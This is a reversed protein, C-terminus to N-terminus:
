TGSGGDSPSDDNVWVVATSSLGDQSPIDFVIAAEDGARISVVASGAPVPLPAAPRLQWAGGAVVLVLAFAVAPVWVRRRHEIFEELWLRVREGLPVPREVGIGGMVRQTLAAFQPAMSELEAEIAESTLASQMALGDLVATCRECSRLHPELAARKRASLEGDYLLILDDTDPCSM